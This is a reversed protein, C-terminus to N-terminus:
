ASLLRQFFERYRQFSVRLDETSTPDSIQGRSVNDHIEQLTREVLVSAEHVARQPDDVFTGQVQQWQERLGAPDNLLGVRTASGDAAAETSTRGHDPAPAASEVRVSEGRPDQGTGDYGTEVPATGAPHAVDGSEGVYKPEGVHKPEGVNNFEDADKSGEVNRNVAADQHRGSEATPDHAHGHETHGEDTERDRKDRARNLESDIFRRVRGGLGEGRESEGHQPGINM